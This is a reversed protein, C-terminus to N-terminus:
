RNPENGSKWKINCGSSPPGKGLNKGSLMAEAAAKLNAGDPLGRSPRSDDFQGAYSLNRHEDFLFFDPTCAAGYAKAVEQSQDILYPFKWVYDRKFEKMPIPGDQPYNVLDNSNIVVTKIGKVFFEAALSGLAEALHIVFPCHNCAFVVLTGRKGSVEALSTLNGDADPLRFDPAPDGTKLEFTSFVEAM